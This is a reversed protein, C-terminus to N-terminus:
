YCILKPTNCKNTSHLFDKSEGWPSFGNEFIENPNRTDGRYVVNLNDDVKIDVKGDGTSDFGLFDGIKSCICGFLSDKALGFPDVWGVPNPAYQYLNMGGM